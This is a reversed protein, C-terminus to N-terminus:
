SIAQLEHELDEPTQAGDQSTADRLSYAIRFLTKNLTFDGDFTQKILGRDRYPEPITWRLSTHSNKISWRKWRLGYARLRSITMQFTRRLARELNLPCDQIKSNTIEAYLCRWALALLGATAQGVANWKEGDRLCGLILFMDTSEGMPPTSLNLDDMYSLLPDWFEYGIIPCTALHYM